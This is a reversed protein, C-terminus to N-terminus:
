VAGSGGATRHSLVQPRITVQRPFNVETSSRGIPFPVIGLGDDSPSEDPWLEPPAAHGPTRASAPYPFGSLCM